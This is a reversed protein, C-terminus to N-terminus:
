TIACCESHQLLLNVLEFGAQANHWFAFFPAFKGGGTVSCRENDFHSGLCSGAELLWRRDLKNVSCQNQTGIHGAGASLCHDLGPSSMQSGPLLNLGSDPM